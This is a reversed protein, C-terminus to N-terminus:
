AKQDKGAGLTFKDFEDIDFSSQAKKGTQPKQENMAQERTSIGKEHWSQLIKNIYQFSLKNTADACKERALSIMDLGFGMSKWSEIYESQKESLKIDLGFDRKIEAEFSRQEKLREFEKEISSFETAGKEFLSKAVTEYYRASTKGLDRCYQLILVIAQESFGYYDKLNLLVEHDAHKLIRGLTGEAESFLEKLQPSQRLMGAIDAPQYRSHVIKVTEKQMEVPQNDHQATEEGGDRRILGVQEWFMAAEKIENGSLGTAAKIKAEDPREECSLLYLLLKLAAGDALKLYEDAVTCPVTFFRKYPKIDFLEM